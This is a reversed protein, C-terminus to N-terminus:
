EIPSDDHINLIVYKFVIQFVDIEYAARCAAAFAREAARQGFLVAKQEIIGVRAKILM